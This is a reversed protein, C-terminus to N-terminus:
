GEGRRQGLWSRVLDIDDRVMLSAYPDEPNAADIKDALEEQAPLLREIAFRVHDPVPATAPPAGEMLAISEAPSFTISRLVGLDDTYDAQIGVVSRPGFEGCGELRWHSTVVCERGLYEFTSGIPRWARLREFLQVKASKPAPGRKRFPWLNM